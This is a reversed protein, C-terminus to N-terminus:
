RNAIKVYLYNSIYTIINNEQAFGRLDYYRAVYNKLALEPSITILMDIKLRIELVAKMCELTTNKCGAFSINLKKM